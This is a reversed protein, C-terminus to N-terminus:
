GPAVKLTREAWAAQDPRLPPIVADGGYHIERAYPGADYCRDFVSQLDLTVAPDGPLLPINVPPLRDELRIPYVYFTEFDDFGHVSVHDDFSGCEARLRDLDVATTSAAASSISRSWTSRAPSSRGSSESTSTV